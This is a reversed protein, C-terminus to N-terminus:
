ISGVAVVRGDHDRMTVIGHGEYVTRGYMDKAVFKTARYEGPRLPLPAPAPYKRRMMRRQKSNM